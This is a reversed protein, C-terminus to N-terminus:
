NSSEKNSGGGLEPWKMMSCCRSVKDLTIVATAASGTFGSIFQRRKHPAATYESQHADESPVVYASLGVGGGGSEQDGSVVMQSEKSRNVNYKLKKELKPLESAKKSQFFHHLILATVARKWGSGGGREM